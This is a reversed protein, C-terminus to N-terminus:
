NGYLIRGCSPCYVFDSGESRAATIISSPVQMNCAACSDDELIAIAVGGKRKSLQVYLDHEPGQVDKGLEAREDKMKRYQQQLTKGESILEKQDAKWQTQVEALKAQESTLTERLKDVQVLAEVSADEITTRQKRLSELATQLSDLEKHNTIEGSMLRTDTEKIRDDLGQAELESDKQRTEWEQIAKETKEVRLRATKLTDSEGIQKQIELLRKYAQAIVVDVKQLELLQALDAM